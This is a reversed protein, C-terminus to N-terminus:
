SDDDKLSPFIACSILYSVGEIFHDIWTAIWGVVQMGGGDSLIPIVEDKTVGSLHEQLLIAQM